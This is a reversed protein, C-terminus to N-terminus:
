VHPRSGSEYGPGFSDIQQKARPRNWCDVLRLECGCLRIETEKGNIPKELPCSKKALSFTM